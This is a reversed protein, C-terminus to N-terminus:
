MYQSLWLPILSKSFGINWSLDFCMSILYWLMLSITCLPATLSWCMDVSSYTAFMRLLGKGFVVNKNKLSCSPTCSFTDSRPFPCQQNIVNTMHEEGLREVLWPSPPPPPILLSAEPHPPVGQLWSRSHKCAGIHMRGMLWRRAM